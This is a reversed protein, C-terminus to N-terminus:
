VVREDVFPAGWVPSCLAGRLLATEGKPPLVDGCRKGPEGATTLGTGGALVELLSAESQPPFVRQLM